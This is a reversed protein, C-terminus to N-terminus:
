RGRRTVTFTGGDSRGQVSPNYMEEAHAPPRIFVGPTTARAVYTASYTGPWLHTAVWAVRDDRMERHDFPSWWGSDWSGYYWGWRDADADDEGDDERGEGEDDGGDAGPGFEGTTRLSLDVAELGAPLPDTLALFSREASVTIRLRVRVLAGEQVTTVPRGTEYDEYWRAVVIGKMDPTVPRARPVEHVTVHYYLPAADESSPAAVTVTLRMSDAGAPTLLGALNNTIEQQMAGTGAARHLVRGGAAVTFGRRAARQQRATFDALAEVASGYDQTNWWSPGRGREVLTEVLPGVLANGPDVALTASLLRAAPRRASSFYFRRALTDPLVARRGEVRVMSWVPTILRRAEAVNRRSLVEAFRVRDELAMLTASRLLENEGPIDPRGFRSLFDVAAVQEALRVQPEEFWALLPAHIPRPQHISRTLYDAMRALLSDDVAVGAERARLLVEGAYATLWPTTWDRADWMGIGGDSRQRRSILAVGDVIHRMADAPAWRRGDPATGARHLAILPMLSSALQETCAFPYFRLYQHMGNIISLPSTGISFVMRSRAPDIDAPLMIEASSTLRAVGAATFARPTHSPRVPLRMLVADSDRGSSVDFRFAATDSTTDRFVWRIETGRGRALTATKLAADSLLAGRANVRARVTPTGGARANVVIGAIFRDDRRLFRPLAPRAVLPRTVLMPSEGSGYRDANTVAVAMVRFTTLNDPLRAAAVANGASDTIVSGLFFATTQFRSRLIDGSEQGGGGGPARDGKISVGESDLVQPAVAILNAAMRLGVGRARYLLEVPDPTRYGTLALVGEDVAWLTVESRRGAGRSDRVRVAIRASDGPRYETARPAVEVRLRKVSPTVRLEAYGLRLAPRGPDAIGGPPASRGRVAVISVFANPVHAETLPVKISSSGSALRMRRQEIIGEREVTIWAEADTFPSAILLTATDGVDYSTRDPIVDMKFQSEDGWPVWDRGTAWRYFTTVAERGAEDRARFTMIYTGGRDPTFGCTAQAASTTTANCQAITDSVWSGVGEDVGDRRRQVRHWERRVVTGRVEVNGVRSGDPRVAILGLRVPAGTRWFYEDGLARAGIYFSAPHLLASASASVAQRNVDTVTAQIVVRAARGRPPAGLPVRLVLRGADDLTDVGSTLTAPRAETGEHEEWWWGHEGITYEDTNPISVWVSPIQRATWSVAARGMAAGFLYRAEVTAQMTDGALRGATDTTVGVLFEPPRYEAVRYWTDALSLWTGNRKLEISVSYTGLAQGAPIPLRYDATGFASLAVVTDKLSKDYERDRFLWRLSDGRAPARLAGLLGTRVIAKAHVAEGPRYIGRETFVAGAAPVRDGGYGQSVNFRWPSLEWTYQDFVVVARDNGSVVSVHGEFGTNEENNVSDPRLGTLRLLGQADTAGRARVRGHRDYLTVAAGAIPRGDHITTAWVVAEEEGLKAAIGINTVQVIATGPRRSSTTMTDERASIRLATLAPAGPRAANYVPLRVASVLPTDLALRVPVQRATAHAAVLAWAEDANWQPMALFRGELSEPVAVSTVELMGVNVHRVALTRFSEREVVMRGTAFEVAAAYGTTLFARETVGTLPQGFADRLSRDVAIAYRTRPRLPAELVWYDSEAATDAITFDVAPTMRVARLVDAGKVPTSFAVAAFGSPCRTTGNTCEAREFAFNGYTGFPWRLPRETGALDLTGPMVLALECGRPLPRVPQLHIIRRLSDARPNRDWRGAHRYRAPDGDNVERQSTARVAIPNPNACTEAAEIRVIRSVAELDAPSSVLIDFEADTALFRARAYSGVPTGDLPRPGSVRFTFRYPRELQAGDMARFTNAITVTYEAGPRLPAAPVFRLTVPDRWEARGPVAPSIAFIGAANVVSDLSGAVPRDFMITISATPEAGDGPSTRLVQLTPPPAAIVTAAIVSILASRM